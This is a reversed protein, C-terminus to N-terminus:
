REILVNRGGSKIIILHLATSILTEMKDLINFAGFKKGYVLKDIYNLQSQMESYDVLLHRYENTKGFSMLIISYYKTFCNIIKLQLNHPKITRGFDQVIMVKNVRYISLGIRMAREVFETDIAGLFLNENYLGVKDFTSIPIVMGSNILNSVKSVKSKFMTIKDDNQNNSIICGLIGFDHDLESLNRYDIYIENFYNETLNADQDLIYIISCDKEKAAKVGVNLGKSLGFNGENKKYIIRNPFSEIASIVNQAPRSSVTSNDVFIAYDISNNAIASLIERLDPNYNYVVMLSCSIHNKHM